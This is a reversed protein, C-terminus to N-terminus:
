AGKRLERGFKQNYAHATRYSVMAIMRALALGAKPPSKPDFRGDNWLPDMYLAQRQLESIAIQWAHHYAGCAIPLAARVFEPMMAWELTQMGGLSGGLACFVSKAGVGHEVAM